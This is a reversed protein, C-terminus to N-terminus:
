RGGVGFADEGRIAPADAPDATVPREDDLGPVGPVQRAWERRLEDAQRRIRNGFLISGLLGSRQEVDVAAVESIEGPRHKVRLRRGRRGGLRARRGLARRCVRGGAGPLAQRRRRDRADARRRGRADAHTRRRGPPGELLVLLLLLVLFVFARRSRLRRRRRRRGRTPTSRFLTTYPFPPPRPPTP